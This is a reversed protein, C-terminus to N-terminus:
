RNEKADRRERAEAMRWCAVAQKRLRESVLCFQSYYPDTAPWGRLAADAATQYARCRARWEVTSLRGRTM